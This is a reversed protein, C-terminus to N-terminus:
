LVYSGENFMLLRVLLASKGGIAIQVGLNRNNHRNARNNREGEGHCSSYKQTKM